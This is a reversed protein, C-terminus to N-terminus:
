ILVRNGVPRVRALGPRRRPLARYRALFDAEISDRGIARVEPGTM